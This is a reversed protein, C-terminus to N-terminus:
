QPELPAVPVSFTFTTGHDPISDVWIRGGHAEVVLKCFALGLGSGRGEQGGTVFKQFLRGQIEPPIGSGTDSVSLLLVPQPAQEDLNATVSVAGGDPTFKIGNGVLNQLVRHIL